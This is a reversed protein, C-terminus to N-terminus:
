SCIRSRRRLITPKAGFLMKAKTRQAATELLFPFHGEPVVNGSVTEVLHALEVIEVPVPNM